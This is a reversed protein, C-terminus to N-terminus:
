KTEKVLFGTGNCDYCNTIPLSLSRCRHCPVLGSLAKTYGCNCPIDFDENVLCSLDHNGYRLLNDFTTFYRQKWTDAELNTM